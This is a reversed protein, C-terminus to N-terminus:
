SSVPNSDIYAVAFRVHLPIRVSYRHRKGVALQSLDASIGAAPSHRPSCGVGASTSAGAQGIGASTSAGAQNARGTISRTRFPFSCLLLNRLPSLSGHRNLSVVTYRIHRRSSLLRAASGRKQLSRGSFGHVPRPVSPCDVYPQLHHLDSAPSAQYAPLSTHVHPNNRHNNHLEFGHADPRVGPATSPRYRKLPSTHSSM